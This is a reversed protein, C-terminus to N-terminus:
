FLHYSFSQFANCKRNNSICWASVFILSCDSSMDFTLDVSYFYSCKLCDFVAKTTFLYQYHPIFRHKSLAVFRLSSFIKTSEKMYNLGWPGLIWLSKSSQMIIRFRIFTCFPEDGHCSLFFICEIMLHYSLLSSYVCRMPSSQSLLYIM